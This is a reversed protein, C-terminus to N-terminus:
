VKFFMYNVLIAPLLKKSGAPVQELTAHWSVSTGTLRSISHEEADGDTDNKNICMLNQYQLKKLTPSCEVMHIHLSDTFNRFKSAGQPESILLYMKPM